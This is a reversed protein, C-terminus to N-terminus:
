AAEGNDDNPMGPSQKMAKIRKFSEVHKQESLVFCEEVSPNEIRFRDLEMWHGLVKQVISDLSPTACVLSFGHDNIQKFTTSKNTPDLKSVEDIVIPIRLKVRKPTMRHLLVSLVQATIASITGNSQDKAVFEETGKIRYKYVVSDILMDLRLKKRDKTLHKDAFSILKDYFEVPMLSSEDIDFRTIDDLLSQFQKTLNLELLVENINSVKTQNIEKNLTAIFSLLASRADLLEEIQHALVQNHTEVNRQHLEKDTELSQFRDNLNKAYRKYDDYVYVDSYQSYDSVSLESLIPQLKLLYENHTTVFKGRLDILKEENEQTLQFADINLDPKYHSAGINKNQNLSNLLKQLSELSDSQRSLDNFENHAKENLQLKQDVDLQLDDKELELEAISELYGNLEENEEVRLQLNTNYGELLSLESTVKDLEKKENERLTEIDGRQFGKLMNQLSSCEQNVKTLKKSTEDIDSQLQKANEEHNYIVPKKDKLTHGIFTVTEEYLDFLGAFDKIVQKQTETAATDPIGSFAKDLTLLVSASKEDLHSTLNNNNEKLQIAEELELKLYNSRSIANQLALETNAQSDIDAIRKEAEAKGEKFIEVIESVEKDPYRKVLAETKAIKTDLKALNKETKSKEGNAKKIADLTSNLALKAAQHERYAKEKNRKADDIRDDLNDQRDDCVAQLNAMDQHLSELAEDTQRELDLCVKWHEKKNEFLQIEEREKALQGYKDQLERFDANLHEEARTRDMEVLTALAQALSGGKGTGNMDFCLQYLYRFADISKSDNGNKLPVICFKGEDRTGGHGAFIWEAIEKDNAPIVGNLKKLQPIVSASEISKQLCGSSSDFFLDKIESFPVPVFIRTYSFEASGKFLVMCYTGVPNEIEAIIYSTTGPFYFASSEIDNFYGETTRKFRFKAECKKFNTEPYLVLKLGSMGSTKGGNNDGFIGLNLNLPFEVFGKKASNVYTIKKLMYEQQFTSPEETAFDLQQETM